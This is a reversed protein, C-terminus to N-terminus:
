RAVSDDEHNRISLTAAISSCALVLLLLAPLLDNLLWATSIPLMSPQLNTPDGSIEGDPLRITGNPLVVLSITRVLENQDAAIATVELTYSGPELNKPLEVDAWLYGERDARTLTFDQSGPNLVLRASSFRELDSGNVAVVATDLDFTFDNDSKVQESPQSGYVSLTLSPAVRLQEAASAGYGLSMLTVVAAFVISLVFNLNKAGVVVGSTAVRTESMADFARRTFWTGFILGVAILLQIIVWIWAELATETVDFVILGFILAVAVAIIPVAFGLAIFRRQRTDPENQPTPAAPVSPEPTPAEPRAAKAFQHKGFVFASLLVSVVLATYLIIPVYTNWLRVDLPITAPATTFFSSFFVAVALWTALVLSIVIATGTFRHAPLLLTSNRAQPILAREVRKRAWLAGLAFVAIAAVFVYASPRIVSAAEPGFAFDTSYQVETAIDVMLAAIFLMWGLIASTLTILIAAFVM